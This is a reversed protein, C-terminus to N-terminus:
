EFYTVLLYSLLGDGKGTCRYPIPFPSRIRASRVGRHVPDIGLCRAALPHSGPQNYTHPPEATSAPSRLRLHSGERMGRLSLDGVSAYCRRARSDCRVRLQQEPKSGASVQLLDRDTRRRFLMKVLLGHGCSHFGPKHPRAAVCTTVMELPLCGNCRCSAEKM